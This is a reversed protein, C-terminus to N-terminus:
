KGFMKMFTELVNSKAGPADFMDYRGMPSGGGNWQDQFNPAMPNPQPAMEPRPAPMPVAANRSSMADTTAPTPPGAWEMGSAPAPPTQPAAQDQTPYPAGAMAARLKDMPSGGFKSYDVNEMPKDMFAFESGVRTKPDTLSVSTPPGNSLMGAPGLLSGARGVIGSTFPRAAKLM